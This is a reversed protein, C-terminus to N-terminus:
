KFVIYKLEYPGKSPSKFHTSSDMQASIQNSNGVGAVNFTIGDEVGIYVGYANSTGSTTATYDNTKYVRIKHDGDNYLSVKRVAEDQLEFTGSDTITISRFESSYDNPTTDYISAM